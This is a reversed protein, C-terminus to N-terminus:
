LIISIPFSITCSNNSDDVGITAKYGPLNLFFNTSTSPTLLPAMGRAELYTQERAVQWQALCRCIGYPPSLLIGIRLVPASVLLASQKADLAIHQTGSASIQSM